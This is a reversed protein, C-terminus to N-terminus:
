ELKGKKIKGKYMRGAAVLIDSILRDDLVDFGQYDFEAFDAMDLEIESRVIVKKTLYNVEKELKVIKM